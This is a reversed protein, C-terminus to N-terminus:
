RGSAVAAKRRLKHWSKRISFAVHDTDRTGVTTNEAKQVPAAVKRELLKEIQTALSLPGRELGV